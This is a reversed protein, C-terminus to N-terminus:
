WSTETDRKHNAKNRERSNSSTWLECDQQTIIEIEKIKTFSLAANVKNKPGGKISVQLHLHHVFLVLPSLPLKLTAVNEGFFLQRWQYHADTLCQSLCGCSSRRAPIKWSGKQCFCSCYIVHLQFSWGIYSNTMMEIIQKALRHTTDRRWMSTEM